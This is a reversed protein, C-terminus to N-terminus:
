GGQHEELPEMKVFSHQKALGQEFGSFWKQKIGILNGCKVFLRNVSSWKMCRPHFLHSDSYAYIYGAKYRKDSRLEVLSYDKHTIQISSPASHSLSGVTQTLKHPRM